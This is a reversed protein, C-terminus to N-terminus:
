RQTFGWLSQAGRRGVAGWVGAEGGGGMAAEGQGMAGWMCELGGGKGGLVVSRALPNPPPPSVGWPAGRRGWLAAMRGWLLELRGWLAKRRGWLGGVGLGVDEEGGGLQSWLM